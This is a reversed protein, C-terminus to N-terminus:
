ALASTISLMLADLNAPTFGGAAKPLVGVTHKQYVDALGADAFRQVVAGMRADGQARSVYITKQGSFGFMDLGGSRMGVHVMECQRVKLMKKLVYFLRVQNFRNSFMPENEWYKGIVQAGAAIDLHHQTVVGADDSPRFDGAVIVQIAPVAAGCRAIIQAMGAYSHDHDPHMGGARGSERGWLIVAHRTFDIGHAVWFAGCIPDLFNLDIIPLLQQTPDGQPLDDTRLTPGRLVTKINQFVHPNVALNALDDCLFNTSKTLPFLRFVRGAVTRQQGSKPPSPVPIAASVFKVRGAPMKFHDVLVNAVRGLGGALSNSGDMVIVGLTPSNALAALVHPIDGTADGRHYIVRDIGADMQTLAANISLYTTAPM